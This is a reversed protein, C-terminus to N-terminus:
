WDIAAAERRGQTLGAEAAGARRTFDLLNLGFAELSASDPRIVSVKSGGERVADLEKELRKRALVARPDDGGGAVVLVLVSDYGKALDANTGSRMGGDIYRRGNITIPPYVGPVSCSSAVARSLPVGSDNSWTRFEGTLADVATCMYQKSPWSDASALMKGFTAIFAEESMTNAALAFAGIEKRLEEPSGEGTAAKQMLQMLPSLDPAAGGSGTNSRTPGPRTNSSDAAVAAYMQQPQRGMALQAGVASGASTGIIMDADGLNIGQEALGAAIGTEWAIGVPGGGGLVLARTM